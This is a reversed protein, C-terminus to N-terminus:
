RHTAAAPHTRLVPLSRQCGLVIDNGWDGDFSYDMDAHALATISRLDAADLGTYDLRLAVARSLQADRGPEDSQTVRTNDNSWADYGNDANSYLLMLNATLDDGFRTRLKARVLTEDFGNTDDRHLFANDRYGDSKFRHVAVRWASDDGLTNNLVLGGGRWGYDGAELTAFGEFRDVPARTRLSVLGAIANAGYATGQPGRLVEVREADFLNAPMAVGSFDVDDILFGVSPNPAGEYQELEGIGRIQFYRPRSTGGAFNLNPVNGLVDGFHEAGPAGLTREDLVTVSMPARELSQGLLTATIVVEELEGAPEAAFSSTCILLIAASPAALSHLPRKM